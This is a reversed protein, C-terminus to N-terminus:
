AIRRLSAWRVFGRYNRARRARTKTRRPIFLDAAHQPGQGSRFATDSSPCSASTGAARRLEAAFSGATADLVPIVPDSPQKHVVRTRGVDVSRNEADSNIPFNIRDRCRAHDALRDTSTASCTRSVACFAGRWGVPTTGDEETIRLGLALKGPTAGFEVVLWLYVVYILVGILISESTGASLAFAIVLWVALVIIGDVAAGTARRAHRVAPQTRNCCRTSAAPDRETPRPHSRRGM